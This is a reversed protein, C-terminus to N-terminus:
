ITWWQLSVQQIRPEETVLLKNVLLFYYVVTYVATTYQKESYYLSHHIYLLNVLCAILMTKVTYSLQRKYVDRRDWKIVVVVYIIVTVLIKKQTNTSNTSYGGIGGKEILIQLCYFM